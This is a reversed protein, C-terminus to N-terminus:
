RHRSRVAVPPSAVRLIVADGYRLSREPPGFQTIVGNVCVTPDPCEEGDNKILVFFDKQDAPADGLELWRRSSQARTIRSIMGTRADFVVPRIRIRFGSLWTAANAKSGWYPGYGYTLKNEALFQLLERTGNDSIAFSPSRWAPFSSVIGSAAFMVATAAAGIRLAPSAKTWRLDLLAATGAVGLYLANILFRAVNDQAPVNSLTVACATGTVSLAITGCFAALKPDNRWNRLASLRAAAVTLGTFVLLSVLAPLPANPVTGPVINLLGGLGRLM